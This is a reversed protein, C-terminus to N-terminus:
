GQEVLNENLNKKQSINIYNMGIWVLIIYFLMSNTFKFFVGLYLDKTQNTVLSQVSEKYLAANDGNTVTIKALLAPNLIKMDYMSSFGQSMTGDAFGLLQTPVLPMYPAYVGVGTKGDAGLVGLYCVKGDVLAPSVIVKMGAVEGAIYPGNAVSNSAPKFGPVFTIIPMMDPSVLMWNPMFRRNVKYVAAKAEELKKAFGELQTVFQVIM